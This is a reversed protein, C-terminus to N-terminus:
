PITISSNQGNKLVKKERKTRSNLHRRRKKKKPFKYFGEKEYPPISNGVKEM